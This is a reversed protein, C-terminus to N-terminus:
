TTVSATATSGSTTAASRARGSVIRSRTTSQRGARGAPHGAWASADPGHVEGVVGAVVSEGQAAGTAGAQVQGRDGQPEPLVEPVGRREGVLAREHQGREVGADHM